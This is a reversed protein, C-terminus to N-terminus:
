DSRDQEPKRLRVASDAFCIPKGQSDTKGLNRTRLFDEAIVVSFLAM